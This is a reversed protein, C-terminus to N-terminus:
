LFNLTNYRHQLDNSCLVCSIVCVCNYMRIYSFQGSVVSTIIIVIITIIIATIVITILTIMISIVTIMIIMIMIM